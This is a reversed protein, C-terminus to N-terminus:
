GERPKHLPCNFRVYQGPEPVYKCVAGSGSIYRNYACDNCNPLGTVRRLEEEYFKLGCTTCNDPEPGDATTPKEAGEIEGGCAAYGALDIWNDAKAHGSAIRAIKLLALMAAVDRPYIEAGLYASWFSAIRSFNAKPAGYDQERDGVVCRRANELIESRTMSM